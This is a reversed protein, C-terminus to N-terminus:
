FHFLQFVARGEGDYITALTTSPLRNCKGVRRPPFNIGSFISHSPILLWSPGTTQWLACYSSEIVLTPNEKLIAFTAEQIRINGEDLLRLPTQVFEYEDANM